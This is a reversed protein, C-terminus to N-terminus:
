KELQKSRRRKVLWVIIVIAIIAAAIYSIWRKPKCYMYTLFETDGESWSTGGLIKCYAGDVTCPMDSCISCPIIRESPLQYIIPDNTYNKNNFRHFRYKRLVRTFMNPGTSNVVKLHKGIYFTGYPKKMEELCDLMIHSRPKAAMFANTYTRRIIRSRVAYIELAAPDGKEEGSRSHIFLEDLPKMIEIDLDLYVGGHVYLWMYRIADARQIPYEFSKFYSLFDPFYRAVFKLNDEDTLLTYKWHPMHHRIAIQSSVWKAPLTTTKWTQMIRRPISLTPAARHRRAGAPREAGALERDTM